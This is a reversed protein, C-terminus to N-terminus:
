DLVENKGCEETKLASQIWAARFFPITPLAILLGPWKFLLAYHKKM